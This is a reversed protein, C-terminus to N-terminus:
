PTTQDPCSSLTVAMAQYEAPTVWLKYKTKVAIQRAVYACRFAKNPPLWSSADSDGKDQNTQGDVALLELPDNALAYREAASLQQAGKQWADGLAAVHDIQVDDSTGNGRVFDITKGSYPDALQGSLVKCTGSVYTVGTLDRGLVYNRADCTGINGWGDSFLARNYGTKPARGKVPLKQLVAAAPSTGAPTNVPNSGPAASTKYLQWAGVFIVFVVYCLNALRKANRRSIKLYSVKKM